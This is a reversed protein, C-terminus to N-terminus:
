KNDRKDGDHERICGMYLIGAAVFSIASLIWGWINIPELVLIELSLFILLYLFAVTRLKIM